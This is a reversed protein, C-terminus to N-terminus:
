ASPASSAPRGRARHGQLNLEWSFLAAATPDIDNHKKHFPVVSADPRVNAVPKALTVVGDADVESV